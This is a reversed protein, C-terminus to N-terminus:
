RRRRKVDPIGELTWRCYKDYECLSTQIEHAERGTQEALSKVTAQPDYERVRKLGRDSGITTPCDSTDRVHVLGLSMLDCAIQLSCFKVQRKQHDSFYRM